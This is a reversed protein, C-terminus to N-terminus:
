NKSSTKSKKMKKKCNDLKIMAKLNKLDKTLFNTSKLVHAASANM